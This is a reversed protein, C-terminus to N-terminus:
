EKIFKNTYIGKSTKVSLVYTGNTLNAVNIAEKFNTGESKYGLDQQAVVQGLINSISYSVNESAKMDVVLNLNSEVPNPYMQVNLENNAILGNMGTVWDAVAANQAQGSLNSILMAVVRLHNQSTGTPITWTFTHSNTSGNAITSPLSGPTGGFNNGDIERAVFDFHFKHTSVQVPENQWNLGAGVLPQNQSASSYYNHQSYTTDGPHFVDDETVVLALRYDYNSKTDVAFHASVNATIVNGTASANLSLDAVGFDNIHNAYGTFMDSPDILDARDIVVTPFGTFGPLATEGADYATVTMVDSNHVAIYAETPNAKHVSDMFVAGRPCWGCWTGTCEEFVIHHTPTFSAGGFESALSDNTHNNDGTLEAWIKMPKIGTSPMTYTANFTATQYPALSATQPFSTTSAGDSVKVTYNSITSAGDNRVLGTINVTGNVTAYSTYESPQPTVAQFNIDNAPLAKVMFNNLGLLYMDTSNNIIAIYVSQGNYASLDIAHTTWAANEAAVTLLTTTFSATAATTTSIKVVFGDPYTADLATADFILWNGTTLTIQPSILWDNSTGPSSYYSTSMMFGDTAGTAKYSIWANSGFALGAGNPQAATLATNVTLGDGNWQTWGAPLGPTTVNDFNESFVQANSKTTFLLTLVM